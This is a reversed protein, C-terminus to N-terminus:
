GRKSRKAAREVAKGFQREFFTDHNEDVYNEVIRSFVTRNHIRRAGIVVLHLRQRKYPEGKKNKPNWAAIRPEGYRQLIATQHIEGTFPNDLKQVTFPKGIPSDLRKKDRRKQRPDNVGIAIRIPQKKLIKAVTKADFDIGADLMDQYEGYAKLRRKAHKVAGAGLMRLTGAYARETEAQLGSTMFEEFATMARKDIDFRVTM